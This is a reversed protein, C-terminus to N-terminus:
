SVKAWGAGGKVVLQSEKARILWWVEYDLVYLPIFCERSITYKQTQSTLKTIM